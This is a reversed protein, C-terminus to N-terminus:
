QVLPQPAAAALLSEAPAGVQVVSIDQGVSHSAQGGQLACSGLWCATGAIACAARLLQLLLAAQQLLLLM